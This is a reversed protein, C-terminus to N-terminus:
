RASTPRFSTSPERQWSRLASASRSPVREGFGERYRAGAFWAMNVQNVGNRDHLGCSRACISRIDRDEVFRHGSLGGLLRPFEDFLDDRSSASCAHIASRRQRLAQRNMDASRLGGHRDSLERRIDFRVQDDDSRVPMPADGPEKQPRDRFADHAERRARHQDHPRTPDNGDIDGRDLRRTRPAHFSPPGAVSPFEPAGLVTLMVFPAMGIVEARDARSM